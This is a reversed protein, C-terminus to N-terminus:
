ENEGGESLTKKLISQARLLRVRVTSEKVNLLQAISKYSLGSVVKMFLPARYIEPLKEIADYITQCGELSEVNSHVDDNSAIGYVDDINVAESFHKERRIVDIATNRAIVSILARLETKNDTKISKINKTIKMLSDSVTETTFYDDGTIKFAIKAILTHYNEYIYILKNKDEENDILSLYFSLM